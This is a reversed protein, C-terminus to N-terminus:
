SQVEAYKVLVDEATEPDLRLTVEVADDTLVKAASWYPKFREELAAKAKAYDDHGRKVKLMLAYERLYGDLPLRRKIDGAIAKPGRSATVNISYKPPEIWRDSVEDYKAAPKCWHGQESRPWTVHINIKGGYALGPRKDLYVQAGSKHVLAVWLPKIFGEFTRIKWPGHPLLESLQEALEYLTTPNTAMM